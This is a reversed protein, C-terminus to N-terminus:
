LARGAPEVGPLRAKLMREIILHREEQEPIVGRSENRAGRAGQEECRSRRRGDSVFGAPM